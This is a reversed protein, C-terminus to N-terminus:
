VHDHEGADRCATQDKASGNNKIRTTFAMINRGEIRRTAEVEAGVVDEEAEGVATVVDVDATSAEAVM